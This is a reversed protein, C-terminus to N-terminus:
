FDYGFRMGYSRPMSFSGKAVGEAAGGWYQIVEDTLNYGYVELVWKGRYFRMGASLTSFAKRKDDTYRIDEDRIAFDMDDTHKDVNWVTLYSDDEWRFNAWPILTGLSGIDFAHDINLNLKLKPSVALENGKLNVELIPNMPDVSDEYSIGFYAAADYHWKTIWDETIETDLSSLYGFIRGGSWPTWDYELEFGMIEAGPVNQTYYAIIPATVWGFVPQGTDDLIPQGDDDRLAEWRDTFAIAGVSAYQMNEYDSYFFAGRLSLKGDALRNKFGLELTTVEEPGFSTRINIEEGTRPNIEHFVDGIGGAKFGTALYAYLLSDESLDHDLGIRWDDHDWSSRNDNATFQPYRNYDFFYEPPLANLSDRMWWGPTCGNDNTCLYTRGGVDEKTEDSHRYGLTLHWQDTFSYTGQAFVSWAKTSRDPQLWFSKDNIPNDYFGRTDTTEQFINAGAIWSLKSDGYSHLQIEHSWSESGTGPLFFMAGDWANLSQEMDQASERQQDELGAFYVMSLDDKLNWELKVRLYEIDLFLKGPVNVVAQYTDDAPFMNACDDTGVIIGAEDRVPRGRLKECNVLDVGGASDQQYRQYSLTLSFGDNPQWLTVLRFAWEDANFYFDDKDAPVLARIDYGSWSDGAWDIWWNTRQTRAYCRPDTCEGFSGPAIVDAGSVLDSIFRQDYQNPDWYGDVYSDRTHTRGAVRIAFTESLPINVMGALERTSWAGTALSFSADYASLDPSNPVINISGVTSNRGFLTGQPGRMVEVRENDFMLGFIGQMRPSYIGDLHVGVAPDGLETENTSRVGRMSIIPTSQGNITAIDMNPVLAALDRVNQVGSRNLLDQDFASVAVPTKMLETEVRTATVIVEEAFRTPETEGSAHNKKRFVSVSDEAVFKFDLNTGEILRTFAAEATFRGALRPSRLDEVDEPLFAIQLDFSEAVTKLADAVTTAQIDLEISAPQEQAEAALGPLGALVVTLVVILLRDGM